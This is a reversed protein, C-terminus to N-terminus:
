RSKRFNEPTAAPLAKLLGVVTIAIGSWVRGREGSGASRM